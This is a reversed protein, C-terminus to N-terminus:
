KLQNSTIVAVFEERDKLNPFTITIPGTKHERNQNKAAGSAIKTMNLVMGRSYSSPPFSVLNGARSPESPPITMTLWRDTIRDSWRAALRITNGDRWLQVQSDGKVSKRPGLVLLKEKTTISTARRSFVLKYTSALSSMFAMLVREEHFEVTMDKFEKECHSFFVRGDARYLQDVHSSIYTAFLARPFRVRLNSHDYLYDMDRFLYHLSCQKWEARTRCIMVAKYRKEDPAIDAVEYVQGSSKAQSWTFAPKQSLGLVAKELEEVAEQSRFQIGLGINPNSGDYVYTFLPHYNGDTKSSREQGTDSWKLLIFGSATTRSVQVHGLPMFFETAQGPKDAISSSIVMRRISRWAEGFSRELIRVECSRHLTPPSTSVMSPMRLQEVTEAPSKFVVKETFQDSDLPERIQVADFYAKPMSIVQMIDSMYQFSISLTMADFKLTLPETPKPVSLNTLSANSVQILQALDGPALDRQLCFTGYQNCLSIKPESEGYKTSLLLMYPAGRSRMRLKKAGIGANVFTRFLVQEDEKGADELEVTIYCFNGPKAPQGDKGIMEEPQIPEWFDLNQSHIAAYDPIDVASFQGFDEKLGDSLDSIMKRIEDELLLQPNDCNLVIDYLIYSAKLLDVYAQHSSNCSLASPSVSGRTSSITSRESNALATRAKLLWWVAVLLWCRATLQQAREEKHAIHDFSALLEADPQHMKDRPECRLSRFLQERLQRRHLEQIADAGSHGPSGWPTSEGPKISTSRQIRGQHQIASFGSGPGRSWVVEKETSFVEPVVSQSPSYTSTAPSTPSTYTTATFSSTDSHGSVISESSALVHSPDEPPCAPQPAPNSRSPQTGELEALIFVNQQRPTSVSISIPSVDDHAQWSSPTPPPIDKASDKTASSEIRELSPKTLSGVCVGLHCTHAVIKSKLDEIFAQQTMWDISQWLQRGNEFGLNRYMDVVEKLQQLTGSCSNLCRHLTHKCEEDSELLEIKSSSIDDKLTQFVSHLSELSAVLQNFGDPADGSISNCTLYLDRALKTLEPVDAAEFISAM